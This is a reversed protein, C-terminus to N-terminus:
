PANVEIGSALKIRYANFEDWHKVVTGQEYTDEDEGMNAQVTDGVAFRLPKVVCGMVGETLRQRRATMGRGIFIIKNERFDSEWPTTFSHNRLTHVCQLVFMKDSGQINLVGKIRMFDKAGEQNGCAEGILEDLFDQFQFM